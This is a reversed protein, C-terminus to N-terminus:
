RLETIGKRARRRMLGACSSSVMKTFKEYSKIDNLGINIMFSIISFSKCSIFSDPVANEYKTVGSSLRRHFDWNLLADATKWDHYSGSVTVLTHLNSGQLKPTANDNSRCFGLSLGEISPLAQRNTARQCITARIKVPLLRKRRYGIMLGCRLTSNLVHYM